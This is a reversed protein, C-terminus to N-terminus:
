KQMDKSLSLILLYLQKISSAHVYADAKNLIVQERNADYVPLQHAQKIAAVQKILAFRENLADMIIRDLTDLRQRLPLLPDNM